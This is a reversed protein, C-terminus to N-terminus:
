RNITTNNVTELLYVKEVLRSLGRQRFRLNEDLVDATYLLTIRHHKEYLSRVEQETVSFPPGKMQSQPYEMSILLTKTNRPLISNLHTAYAGRMEPPLAILSARDYVGVYGHLDNASLDFFDGCLISLKDVEWWEFSRYKSIQANLNNELYFDRVAVPSIDIGLVEHGQARLWLMDLSKGCLPVFVRSNKQLGLHTWYEQLHTNINHQHFGIQNQQWRALWFDTKM